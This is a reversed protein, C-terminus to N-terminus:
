EAVTHLKKGLAISASNDVEPDTLEVYIFRDFIKTFILTIRTLLARNKENGCACEASLSSSEKMQPPLSVRM